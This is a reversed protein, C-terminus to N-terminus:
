GVMRLSAPLTVNEIGSLAFAGIRIKKLGDPFKVSKLNECEKFANCEIIELTSPLM